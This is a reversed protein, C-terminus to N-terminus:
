VVETFLSLIPHSAIFAMVAEMTLSGPADNITKYSRSHKLKSEWFHIEISFENTKLDYLVSIIEMKPNSMEMGEEIILNNTPNALVMGPTETLNGEEDTSYITGEIETLDKYEFIM